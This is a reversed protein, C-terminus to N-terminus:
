NPIAICYTRTDSLRGDATYLEYHVWYNGRKPKWVQWQGYQKDSITTWTKADLDYIKFSYREGVWKTNSACGLLIEDASRYGAYTGAIQTNGGTYAFCITAQDTSKGDPTRMECHLWYNGAEAKWTVWNGPNWDAITEWEKTDLNYSQWRFQAGPNNSEYAVGVDISDQQYKWALGKQKIFLDSNGDIDKTYMTYTGQVAPNSVSTATLTLAPATEDAPVDVFVDNTIHDPVTTKCPSGDTSAISWTVAAKEGTAETGDECFVMAEFGSGCDKLFYKDSGLCAATITIKVQISSVPSGGADAAHVRLPVVFLSLICLM